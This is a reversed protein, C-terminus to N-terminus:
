KGPPKDLNAPDLRLFRVANNFLIDRKQRKSLFPADRIVQISRGLTEPWVMQDSGFMIRNEFGGDVLGKLYRYFGARPMAYDIIGTDVYVQPYAYLLALMDDLMPYGAHMVYVRLHPHRNLVPELSLPSSLAARHHPFGLLPTGPPGPGFHIAVPIDLEEALAWYAEMRPDDPAVGHYQNGIEGFVALRGASHLARLQAISAQHPGISFMLGPYFRDPAAQQWRQVYDPPGSLVGHVNYKKMQALNRQLMEEDSTPSWVPDDCAPHKAMGMAVAGYAGKGDWAPFPDIPTCMAMPPPGQADAPMAHMHVDIIPPPEAASALAPAGALVVAALLRLM